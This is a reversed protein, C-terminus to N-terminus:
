CLFEDLLQASVTEFERMASAVEIQPQSTGVDRSAMSNWSSAVDPRTSLRWRQLIIKKKNGQWAECACQMNATAVQMMSGNTLWTQLSVLLLRESTSEVLQLFKGELQRCKKCVQRFKAFSSAQRFRHCRKFYEHITASHQTHSRWLTLLVACEHDGWATRAWMIAASLQTATISTEQWIIWSGQLKASTWYKVAKGWAQSCEAAAAMVTDAHDRWFGLAATIQQSEWMQEVFSQAMSLNATANGMVKWRTFSIKQRFYAPLGAKLQTTANSALMKM